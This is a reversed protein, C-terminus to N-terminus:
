FLNSGVWEQGDSYTRGDHTCAQAGVFLAVLAFLVFGNM